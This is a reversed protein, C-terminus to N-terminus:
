SEHRKPSRRLFQECVVPGKPGRKFTVKVRYLSGDSFEAYIRNDQKFYTPKTYAYKPM